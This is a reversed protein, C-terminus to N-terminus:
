SLSTGIILKNAVATLTTEGEVLGIIFANLRKEECTGVNMKAAPTEARKM